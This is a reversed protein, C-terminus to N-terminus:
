NEYNDYDTALKQLITNFTFLITLVLTHTYCRSKMFYPKLCKAQQTSHFFIIEKFYTGKGLM